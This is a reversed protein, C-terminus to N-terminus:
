GGSGAADRRYVIVMGVNDMTFTDGRLTGTTTGAGEWQMTLTGDERIYTAEVDRVMESGNPAVFVMVSRCTGDARFEFSGSRVELAVGQNNVVRGPIATGNITTATYSGVLPDGPAVAGDPRAGGCAVTTVGLLALVGAM